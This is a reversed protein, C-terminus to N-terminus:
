QILRFFFYNLRLANELTTTKISLCGDCLILFLFFSFCILLVDQFFYKWMRIYSQRRNKRTGIVPLYLITQKNNIYHICVKISTQTNSPVGKQVHTSVYTWKLIPYSTLRLLLEKIKSDPFNLQKLMKWTSNNSKSGVGSIHKDGVEWNNTWFYM